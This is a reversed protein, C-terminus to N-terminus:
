QEISRALLVISNNRSICPIKRDSLTRAMHLIGRAGGRAALGDGSCAVISAEFIEALDKSDWLGERRDLLRLAGVIRRLLGLDETLCGALALYPLVDAGFTFLRRPSAGRLRIIAEVDPLFEDLVGLAPLRPGDFTWPAEDLIAVWTKQRLRIKSADSQDRPSGQHAERMYQDFRASWRWFQQYIRQYAAKEDESFLTLFCENQRDQGAGADLPRKAINSYVQQYFMDHAVEFSHLEARAFDLTTIPLALHSEAGGFDSRARSVTTLPVVEDDTLIHTELCLRSFLIAIYDINRRRHGASSIARQLAVPLRAKRTAPLEQKSDPAMLSVLLGVGSQLHKLSEAYHGRINEICIFLICCVLAAETDAQTAKSLLPQLHRIAMNYHLMVLREHEGEAMTTNNGGDTRQSLFDIHAAGLAILAYRTAEIQSISLPLLDLWFSTSATSDTLDQITYQVAHNLYGDQYTTNSTPSQTLKIPQLTNYEPHGEPYDIIEPEAYEYGDCKIQAQRCRYCVPKAEDCKLHRIKCTKCGSRVRPARARKRKVPASRKSGDDRGAVM